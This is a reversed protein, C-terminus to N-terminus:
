SFSDLTPHWPTPGSWISHRKSNGAAALIRHQNLGFQASFTQLDTLATPYHFADVIAIAGFGGTPNATVVNPNCSSTRPVLSYVCALSAPTEFGLGSFPPGASPTIAEEPVFVQLHTHARVGKDSAHSISSAPAMVRGHPSKTHPAANANADASQQSQAACISSLTLAISMLASVVSFRQAHM